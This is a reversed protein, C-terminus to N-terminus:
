YIMSNQKNLCFVAYSIRMLSQLESTHEESKPEESRTSHYGPERSEVRTGPELDIAFVVGAHPREFASGTLHLVGVYRARRPPPSFGLEEHLERFLFREVEEDDHAFLAPNDEAQLHGGFVISSSDHLRQEPTKRTRRFSLVRDDEFVLFSPILQVLQHDEVAMM